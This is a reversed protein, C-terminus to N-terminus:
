PNPGAPNLGEAFLDANLNLARRTTAWPPGEIAALASIGLNLTKFALVLDETPIGTTIRGRAKLGDFLGAFGQDMAAQFDGLGAILTADGAFLRALFARVFPHHSRKAEILRWSAEALVEGVPADSGALAPLGALVPGDLAALFGAVIDEKARFYNYLTGKGIEAAAAIEDVTVAAIGRQVFLAVAEAVIRDRTATKKRERLTVTTM